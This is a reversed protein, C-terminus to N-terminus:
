FFTKKRGMELSYVICFLLNMCNRKTKRLITLFHLQVPLILPFTLKNKEDNKGACM